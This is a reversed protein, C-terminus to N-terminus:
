EDEGCEYHETIEKSPKWDTTEEIKDLPWKQNMQEIRMLNTLYNYQDYGLRMETGGLKIIVGNGHDVLTGLTRGEEGTPIAWTKDLPSPVIRIQVNYSDPYNRHNNTLRGKYYVEEICNQNGVVNYKKFM